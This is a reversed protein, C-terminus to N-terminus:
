APGDQPLGLFVRSFADHDCLGPFQNPWTELQPLKADIGAKAHDETYNPM